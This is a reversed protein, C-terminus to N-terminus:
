VELLWAIHHMKINSIAEFQIKKIIKFGLELFINEWEGPTHYQFTLHTYFFNAILDKIIEIFIHNRSELYDEAVVINKYSVRKMENLIIKPDHTHHLTFLCLCTEFTKEPYPIQIGNYLTVEINPHTFPIQKIELFKIRRNTLNSIAYGLHGPGCGVDLIEDKGEILPLLFQSVDKARKNGLNLALRKFNKVIM